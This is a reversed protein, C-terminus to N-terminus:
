VVLICDSRCIRHGAGDIPAELEGFEPLEGISGIAAAFEAM